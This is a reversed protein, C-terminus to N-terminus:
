GASSGFARAGHRQSDHVSGSRVGDLIHLWYRSSLTTSKALGTACPRSLPRKRSRVSHRGSAVRAGIAKDTRAFFFKVSARASVELPRRPAGTGRRRGGSSRSGLSARRRTQGAGHLLVLAPGTGTVDYTIGAGDKSVAFLTRMSQVVRYRTRLERVCGHGDETNQRRTSAAMAVRWILRAAGRCSRM